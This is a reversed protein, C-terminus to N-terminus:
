RPWEFEVKSWKWQRLNASEETRREGPALENRTGGSSTSVPFGRRDEPRANAGFGPGVYTLGSTLIIEFLFYRMCIWEQTSNNFELQLGGDM